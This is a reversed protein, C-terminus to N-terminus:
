VIDFFSVQFYFLDLRMKARKQEYASVILRVKKRYQFIYFRLASKLTRTKM